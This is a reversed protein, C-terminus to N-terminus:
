IMEDFLYENEWFGKNLGRVYVFKGPAEIKEDFLYENELFGWRTRSCIRNEMLGRHRSCIRM